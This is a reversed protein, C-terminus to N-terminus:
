LNYIVLYVGLLAAVWMVTTGLSWNRALVGEPHHIYYLAKIGKKTAKRAVITGIRMPFSGLVAIVVVIYKGFVRYFWDFDLTITPTRKLLPLMIFFALASFLLLQMQSVVHETTYSTYEPMSPLLKYLTAEPVGPIAPIICLISLFVMALKMNLPPDKPRQGSDKSFFVFWPFKIGAHLFVGASAVLLLFWVWRLNEDMAAAAIMSKTVFGMTVPFASIACAGIIGCIATLKMSHYLGGLDTCKSKGTMYLVSGASMFLLAKYIIHAFAHTAVGALALDSGIGIGVVMFGVQNIVSYSLIKRMDNELMAYIIGYFIMALGVYILLETGAFLTMLVFVAAKTTYASLYVAGFPSSKPYADPLWASVPPVAANILVGILIMWMVMANADLEYGPLLISLDADFPLLQVNGDLMMHAIIGTMLVLGGLFHVLAYRIGAHMAGERDSCLILMTSAIAMVEWFFFLSIYDGSFTVGIASGAYIFAFATESPRSQNLGFLAGAFAAISFVSAFVYTYPHIFLPNITFGAINIAVLGDGMPVHWIQALTLIPLLLALTMRLYKHLFPLLLGGVILILAPPLIDIINNIM